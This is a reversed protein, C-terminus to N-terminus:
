LNFDLADGAPQCVPRWASDGVKGLTRAQSKPAGFSCVLAVDPPRRGGTAAMQPIRSRGAAPFPLIAAWNAVFQPSKPDTPPGAGARVDQSPPPFPTFGLFM